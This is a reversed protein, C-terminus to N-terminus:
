ENEILDISNILTSYCEYEFSNKYWEENSYNIENDFDDLALKLTSLASKAEGKFIGLLKVRELNNDTNSFYVDLNDLLVSLLYRRHPHNKM